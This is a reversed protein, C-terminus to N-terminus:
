IQRYQPFANNAKSPVQSKEVLNSKVVPDALIQVDSEASKEGSMDKLSESAPRVSMEVNTKSRGLKLLVNCHCNHFVSYVNFRKPKITPDSLMQVDSEAYKEVAMDELPASAPRGPMEVNTKSRGQKVRKLNAPIPPFENNAKFPVQSKEVLNSKVVPDSLMQVDSEASKEVSMDELSASAPRVSMEVNTKSGGRKLNAPIPPFANNAKFPVQSKEVLNSKVVPDALMQIDSEASKEVTMDELPASAPRGCMDVNTKSRGRKLNAPIPPFENNAKFPVQSKEVLNSKVVPDALMQIDLEASKEVTMDELPASAPRGCMEVNTKSRRIQRLLLVQTANSEEQVEFWDICKSLMAEAESHSTLPKLDLGSDEVDEDIEEEEVATVNLIIQEDNLIEFGGDQKDNELWDTVEKTSLIESHLGNNCLQVIEEVSVPETEESECPIIDPWLKNWGNKLNSVSLDAWASAVNFIADKITYKKWFEKIGIADDSSLLSEIFYKRYWRKKNEIIGQDMPQILPTTNAPLFLCTINGDDSKLEGSPHTPANDMLLLAKQPLQKEALHVKVQPVFVKHFWDFFITQDMWASKQTYYNVPLANMNLNKFARPKKSKGIVLLPLRHNGTANACVMATIRDKQFKFGPATKESFSTLTKQPLAKWNLGTEDCNYVQERVFKLDYQIKLKFQEKFEAIVASNASLKEGSIDLQRIGHRFKFKDLCGTSAKINPDGDLKKNMEGAKTTIIPGSLPIGQSRAQIFWQYMVNDLQEYKASKMTKRSRVDGDNSQMQSVHQEIKEADRKIDNVTTRGVGYIQAINTATEGKKLRKIIELKQNFGLVVRKRKEAM